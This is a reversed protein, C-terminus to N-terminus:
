PASWIVKGAQDFFALGEKIGEAIKFFYFTGKKGTVGGYRIADARGVGQRDHLDRTM